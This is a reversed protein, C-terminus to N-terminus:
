EDSRGYFANPFHHRNIISSILDIVFSRGDLRVTIQSKPGQDIETTNLSSTKKIAASSTFLEFHINKKEATM